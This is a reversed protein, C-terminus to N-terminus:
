AGPEEIPSLPNRNIMQELQGEELQELGLDGHPSTNANYQEGAMPDIVHQNTDLLRLADFLPDFSTSHEQDMGAAFPMGPLGLQDMGIDTSTEGIPESVSGIDVGVIDAAQPALDRYDTGDAFPVDRLIFGM